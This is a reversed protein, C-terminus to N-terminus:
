NEGLKEIEPAPLALPKQQQAQQKFGEIQQELEAFTQGTQIIYNNERMAAELRERMDDGKGSDRTEITTIALGSRSARLNALAAWAHALKSLSDVSMEVEVCDGARTMKHEKGSEIQREIRSLLDSSKTVDEVIVRGQLKEFDSAVARDIQTEHENTAMIIGMAASYKRNDKKGQTM